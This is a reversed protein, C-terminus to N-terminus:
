ENIQEGDLSAGFIKEAQKELIPSSTMCEFCIEKKGPGYPRTEKVENCKYCPFPARVGTVTIKNM